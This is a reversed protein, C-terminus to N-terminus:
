IGQLLAAEMRELAEVLISRPCGFNLRVFGEGGTGYTIGENLAVKAQKEFFPNFEVGPKAELGLSRCDLWALFTGQPAAIEIGPLRESVFQVVLDRNEELYELLADLWPVGHQYAAQLALIGLSNVHGVMGQRAAQYRKRLEENEIIAASASLGATNFTKSPAILTITQDSVSRDLSAVPIHTNGSYILDSHIEDSCITVGHRLCIEAMGELEQRTFVRGTPNQPNCLMFIRTQPTISAEFAELDIQYQGDPGQTFQMEQHSLGFHKAVKLFHHYAPTQVLVGDGPQTIANAALNFGTVVGPILVVSEPKIQWGHRELVWEAVVEQIEEGYYPYGFIGHQVAKELAEIVEPPSTFDMDAVWLPLTDDGPKDWKACNSNRRPYVTDFNYQIHM